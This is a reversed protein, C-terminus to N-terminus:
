RETESCCRLLQFLLLSVSECKKCVMTISPPSIAFAGICIDGNQNLLATVYDDSRAGAEIVHACERLTVGTASAAQLRRAAANM